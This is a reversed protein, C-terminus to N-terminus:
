EAGKRREVAQRLARLYSQRQADRMRQGLNDNHIRREYLVDPLVLARLNAECARSYWDVFGHVNADEAFPGIRAFASRRVLMAGRHIGPSVEGTIPVRNAGTQQFQRVHGFIMDVAPNTKLVHVQKDLKDPLWRDDADLFALLAGQSHQIGLNLAASIGRHPQHLLSVAPARGSAMSLREAVAASADSSGDDVVWVELAPYSQALVSHIAEALYPEANHVPIIVSISLESISLESISLESVLPSPRCTLSSGRLRTDADNNISKQM